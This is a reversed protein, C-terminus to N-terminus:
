GLTSPLGKLVFLTALQLHPEGIRSQIGRADLAQGPPMGFEFCKLNDVNFLYV